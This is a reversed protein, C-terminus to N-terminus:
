RQNIGNMQQSERKLITQREATKYSSFIKKDQNQMCYILLRNHDPQHDLSRHVVSSINIPVCLVVCVVKGVQENMHEEIM